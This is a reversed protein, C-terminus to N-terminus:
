CYPKFCNIILWGFSFQFINSILNEIEYDPRKMIQQENDNNKNITIRNKIRATNTLGPGSRRCEPKSAIPLAIM